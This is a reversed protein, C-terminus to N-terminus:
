APASLARERENLPVRQILGQDELHRLDRVLVDRPDVGREDHRDRTERDRGRSISDRGYLDDDTDKALGGGGRGLSLYQDERDLIGDGQDRSDVDRPDLDGSM